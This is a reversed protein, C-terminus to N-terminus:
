LIKNRYIKNYYIFSLHTKNAKGENNHERLLISQARINYSECRPQGGARIYYYLIIIYYIPVCHGNTLRPGRHGTALNCSNPKKEEM